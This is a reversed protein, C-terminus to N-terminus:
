NFVKYTTHKDVRLGSVAGPAVTTSNSLYINPQLSNGAGIPIAGKILGGPVNALNTLTTLLVTDRYVRVENAINDYILNFESWSTNPAVGLNVITNGTVGYVGRAILFLNTILGPNFGTTNSPDYMIALTNGLAAPTAPANTNLWGFAHVVNAVPPAGNWRIKFIQETYISDLFSLLFNFNSSYQYGVRSGAAASTQLLVQGIVGTEAAQTYTATGGTVTSANWGAPAVGLEFDTSYFFTKVTGNSMSINIWDNNSSGIKFFTGSGDSTICLSGQPANTGGIRPNTDTNIVLVGDITQVGLITAM